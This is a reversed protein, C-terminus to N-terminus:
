LNAKLMELLSCIEELKQKLGLRKRNETEALLGSLRNELTTLIQEQKTM